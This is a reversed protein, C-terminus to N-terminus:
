KYNKACYRTDCFVKIQVTEDNGNHNIIVNLTGLEVSSKLGTDTTNVLTYQVNQTFVRANEHATSGRGYSGQTYKGNLFDEYCYLIDGVNDTNANPSGPCYLWAYHKFEAETLIRGAWSSDEVLSFSPVYYHTDDEYNVYYWLPNTPGAFSYMGNSNTSYFSPNEIAYYRIYYGYDDKKNWYPKYVLGLYDYCLSDSHHHYGAWSFDNQWDLRQGARYPVYLKDIRYNNVIIDNPYSISYTMGNGFTTRPTVILGDKKPLWKVERVSATAATEKISFSMNLTEGDGINLVQADENYQSYYGDSSTIKIIPTLKLYKIRARITKSGIVENFNNPNTAIIEINCDNKAEQVADITIEGKGDGKNSITYGFAVDKDTSEINIEADEPCVAYEITRSEGPHITFNTDGKITFKYDWAVKVNITGKAGKDTICNLIGSGENELGVIEVYGNGDNDPQHPIFEFCDTQQSTTWTLYADPPSVTYKVRATHKPLIRKSQEEFILSNTNEVIVNCKVAKLGPLQATVIAEGAQIPYITVTQGSGMIRAIDKGGGSADAINWEIDYYENNSEANEIKAKLQTGSSGKVLTIYTKNLTLVKEATGPVVVYFQLDSAAKEHSCTIIAEGPKLATIYIQSGIVTGDTNIGTVQIIDNDSTSWKLKANDDPTVGKGSLSAMLTQSKGKNVTHITTNSTIFVTDVPKEKVYVMMEAEAQVVGTSTAILKATVTTTGSQIATIQATTKTGQIALISNEQKGNKPDGVYYEIHTTVNTVPVQMTIFRTDGQNITMNQNPFNFSTYEQVNVIIQQDYAAKPHSLTITCSGRQKPTITCVNASYQFDIVDYVDLSWSFNYKDTSNGNILNATISQSSDTPKMNIISSPVSIYCESEIKKDCVVLIQSSYAAKPHSVTVYTTGEKLARLKGVENQGFVACISSDNSTWIFDSYDSEKGGVLDATVNTYTTGVNLTLVSSTLQIYPNAAAAIPDVCQAIITLPYKCKTNTVTIMATGISNGTLVASAGSSTVDVIAPNSSTWSYGDLIVNESNKINVSINKTTGESLAVVNQGTTLYTFGELEEQSNGVLVLVQKTLETATHRITIQAQGSSVPKIYAIGNTTQASITAIKDNDISFSFGSTSNGTYNVLAAQLQQVPADRLMTIVDQSSIYIVPESDPIIYESGVRAYIKLTNQSDPHSVSIVATGESNSTITASTGNSIVSAVSENDSTWTINHYESSPLNIASVNALSSKGVNGFIMVNQSTTFYVEPETQVSGEPYVTFKFECSVGKYSVTLTSNGVKLGTVTVSLPSKNDREISIVSPNSITWQANSFAYKIVNGDEDYENEEDEFGATQAFCFATKGKEINYYLKDSYLAKMSNLTEIDDATMVLIKKDSDCKSHSATIFTKTCGTGLSPATIHAKNGNASVIITNNETEWHINNNDSEVKNKGKLEVTYDYSEGNLVKVLGSGAFYLPEELIADASLVKVLVETPYAIKPNTITIVATGEAMPTIYSKGDIFSAIAARSYNATGHTTEIKIVDSHGDVPSSKVSWTFNNEDGDVGGRLSISLPTPEAGVKTRIYNQSTTIYCSADVADKLQGTVILLVERTYASKPHSIILKCSGNAEGAVTVCNGVSNVISAASYNDLSYEYEDISYEGEKINELNCTITKHEDGNLTAVITDPQIYVNKVITIVRCLIDLPYVADPHTVRLTCYGSKVPTIVANNGNWDVGVPVIGNQTDVIEWSFNNTSNKKGNVLSVNITQASDGQNMTIINNQTTIYTVDTEDAFVYIGIYYPYSAKQHTVKIRAYGSQKATVLCYQGTPQLSAVSTNDISWTYGDIDGADGGYLSVFVKETVDPKIQLITSNSYIYPEVTKEYGVEYGSVTIICTSDFGDYSCKLNTQGEKLATITVGWNSSTDCQIISEDYSWNLKLNKQESQPKITLSIYDMSGVKMNLTTKKLELSNISVSSSSDSSSGSDEDLSEFFSCSIMCTLIFISLFVSIFRNFMKNISKM